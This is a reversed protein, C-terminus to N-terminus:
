ISRSTKGDTVIEEEKCVVPKRVTGPVAFIFRSTCKGSSFSATLRPSAEVELAVKVEERLPARGPERVTPM